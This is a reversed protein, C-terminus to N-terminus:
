YHPFFQSIQLATVWKCLVSKMEGKDLNLSNNFRLAPKQHATIYNIKFDNQAFLKISILLSAHEQFIFSSDPTM